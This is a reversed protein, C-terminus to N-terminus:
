DKSSIITKAHRQNDSILFQNKIIKSPDLLIKLTYDHGEWPGTITRDHRWTLTYQNQIEVDYDEGMM